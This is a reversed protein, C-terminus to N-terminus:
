QGAQALATVRALPDCDSRQFCDSHNFAQLDWRDGWGAAPGELLHPTARGRRGRRPSATNFLMHPPPSPSGYASCGALAQVPPLALTDMHAHTHTLLHLLRGVFGYGISPRHRNFVRGLPLLLRSLCLLVIFAAAVIGRCAAMSQCCQLWWLRGFGASSYERLM